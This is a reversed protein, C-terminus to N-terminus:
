GGAVERIWGESRQERLKGPQRERSADGEDRMEPYEVFVAALLREDRPIGLWAFLEASRLAGGSSWYSGMGEATLLLLFNQVMAASAALHEADVEDLAEDGRGSREMPRWTVLVLASCAAALKPLKNNLKLEDALHRTLRSVAASGLVHARWPEAIERDRPYHFPAWGATRLAEVVRPLRRAEVEAPVERRAEVECTVKETRRSRILAAVMGPDIEM